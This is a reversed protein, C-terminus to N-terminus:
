LDLDCVAQEEAGAGIRRSRSGFVAYTNLDDFHTVPDDLFVPSLTSWNQSLCATLFLGLLLTQQQSQSFYDTPRLKEGQRRVAVRIKSDDNRIDIEDFGYVSRLRRQIVSTTPGFGTTFSAVAASQEEVLVDALSEFYRLWGEGENRRQQAEGLAEERRLVVDRLRGFAAKTTAADIALEISHVADRLDTARVRERALASMQSLLTSEDADEPLKAEALKATVEDCWSQLNAGEAQLVTASERAEKLEDRVEQLKREQRGLQERLGVRERDVQALEGQLRGIRNEIEAASVELNEDGVRPDALLQEVSEQLERIVRRQRDVEGRCSRLAIRGEEVTRDFRATEEAKESVDTELEATRRGLGDLRGMLYEVSTDILAEAGFGAEKATREFAAIKEVLKAQEEELRRATRTGRELDAVIEARRRAAERGAEEIRSLSVREDGAGDLAKRRDIRQLLAQSSGYDGGCLPCLGSGIHQEIRTLLDRLEAQRQDIKGIRIRRDAEQERLRKYRAAAGAEAGRSREISTSVAKREEVIEPLRERQARWDGYAAVVHDLARAARRTSALETARLTRERDAERRGDTARRIGEAASGMNAQAESALNEAVGIKDALTVYTPAADRLWNMNDLERKLNGRERECHDASRRAGRVGEECNRRRARIGGVRAEAEREAEHVAALEVRRGELAAVVKVLESLRERRVNIQEARVEFAGRWIRLTKVDPLESDVKIDASAVRQRLTELAEQLEGERVEAEPTRGLAALEGEAEQNLRRWAAMEAIREEVIAGLAKCVARTKKSGNWYDEFALLRSVVQRSLQCDDGFDKALEQQEQSFLHTARFLSVLNEVRDAAPGSGGTLLALVTKRDSRVGDVSAHRRDVVRRTVRHEGGDMSVTLTVESEQPDADLHAAVKEFRSDSGVDLRGVDGTAAFDIADFVSTKGFGNPGYLVTVADGMVFGQMKRYARFNRIEVQKLRVPRGYRTKSEALERSVRGIPEPRGFTGKLCDEAIREASRQGPAVLFKALAASVNCRQLLTQASPPRLAQTNAPSLPVFPLRACAKSVPPEFPVVFKSCFYADTEVASCFAVLNPATPAVCFVFALDLDNWEASRKEYEKQFGGYLARYSLKM